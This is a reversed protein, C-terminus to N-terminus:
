ILNMNLQCFIQEMYNLCKFTIKFGILQNTFQTFGKHLKSLQPFQQSFLQYIILSLPIIWIAILKFSSWIEFDFSTYFSLKSM